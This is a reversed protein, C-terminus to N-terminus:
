WIGDPLNAIVMVERFVVFNSALQVREPAVRGSLDKTNLAEFYHPEPKMYFWSGFMATRRNSGGLVM